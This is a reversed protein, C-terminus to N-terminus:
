YYLARFVSNSNDIRAEISAVSQHNSLCTGDPEDYLGVVARQRAQLVVLVRPGLHEAGGGREAVVRKM